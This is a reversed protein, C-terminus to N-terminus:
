LTKKLQEIAKQLEESKKIQRKYPEKYDNWNDINKLCKIILDYEDKLLKIAYYM